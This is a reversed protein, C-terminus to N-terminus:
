VHFQFNQLYYHRYWTTGLIFLIFYWFSIHPERQAHIWVSVTKTSKQLQVAIEACPSAAMDIRQPRPSKKKKVAAILRNVSAATLM